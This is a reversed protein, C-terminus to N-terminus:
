KTWRTFSLSRLLALDSALVDSLHLLSVQYKDFHNRIDSERARRPLGQIDLSHTCRPCPDVRINAARGGIEGGGKEALARSADEKSFFHVFAFDQDLVVTDVRFGEFFHEVDRETTGEPLDRMWLCHSDRSAVKPDERLAQKPNLNM